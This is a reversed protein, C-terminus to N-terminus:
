HFLGGLFKYLRHRRILVGFCLLSDRKRVKLPVHYILKGMLVEVSTFPLTIGDSKFVLLV